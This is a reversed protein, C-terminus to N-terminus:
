RTPQGPAPMVHRERRVGPELPESGAAPDLERRDAGVEARKQRRGSALSGRKALLDERHDPAHEPSLQLTACDLCGSTIM